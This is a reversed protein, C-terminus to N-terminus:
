KIKIWTEAKIIGLHTFKEKNGRSLTRNCDIMQYVEWKNGTKATKKIGVGLGWM